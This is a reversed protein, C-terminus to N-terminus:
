VAIVWALGLSYVGEFNYPDIPPFLTFPPFLGLLTVELAYRIARLGSAALGELINIQQPDSARREAAIASDLCRPAGNKPARPKLKGSAVEERRIKVFQKLCAM